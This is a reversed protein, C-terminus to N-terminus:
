IEKQDKEQEPTLLLFIKTESILLIFALCCLSDLIINLHMVERYFCFIIISCYALLHQLFYTPQQNTKYGWSKHQQPKRKEPLQLNVQHINRGTKVATM